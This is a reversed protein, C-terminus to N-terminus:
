GFIRKSFEFVCHERFVTKIRWVYHKIHEKINKLVFSFLSGFMNEKTEKNKLVYFM